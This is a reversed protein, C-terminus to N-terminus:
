ERARPFGNQRIAIDVNPARKRSSSACPKRAPSALRRQYFERWARCGARACRDARHRRAGSCGRSHARCRPMRAGRPPVCPCGSGSGPGAPLACRRTSASRRRWPVRRLCRRRQHRVNSAQARLERCELLPEVGHLLALAFQHQRHWVQRMGAHRDTARLGVVDFHPAPARRPGETERRAIVDVDPGRDAPEFELNSGLKGARAEVRQAAGDRPQMTRERLEHEVRMRALVAVGFAVHGVDHVRRRHGPRSLQGLELVVQEPHRATACGVVGPHVQNRRGLNRQGVQHAVLDQRRFLQRQLHRRMRRAEPRFRPAVALVRSAHNAHMLEVLDLQHLDHVRVSRVVRELLQDAVGLRYQFFELQRIAHQLEARAVGARRRGLGVIEFHPQRALLVIALDRRAGIAFRELRPAHLRAKAVRLALRLQHVREVAGAKGDAPRQDRHELVVLAGIAADIHRGRKCGYM